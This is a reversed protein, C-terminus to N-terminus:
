TLTPTDQHSLRETVGTAIATSVPTDGDLLRQVLRRIVGPVENIASALEETAWLAGAETLMWTAPPAGGNSVAKDRSVVRNRMLRVLLGGCTGGVVGAGQGIEETTQPRGQHDLLFELVRDRNDSRRGSTLPPEDVTEQCNM